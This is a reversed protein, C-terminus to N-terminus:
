CEFVKTFVVFANFEKGRRFGFLGDDIDACPAVQRQFLLVHKDFPGFLNNQGVGAHQVRKRKGTVTTQVGVGTARLGRQVGDALDLQLDQWPFVAAVPRVQVAIQDDVFQGLHDFRQRADLNFDKGGATAGCRGFGHVQAKLAVIPIVKHGGGFLDM